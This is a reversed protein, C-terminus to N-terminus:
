VLTTTALLIVGGPQREVKIVRAGLDALQRRLPVAVAQKPCSRYHWELAEDPEGALAFLGGLEREVLEAFRISRRDQLHPAVIQIGTHPRRCLSWGTRGNWSSARTARGDPGSCNTSSSNM